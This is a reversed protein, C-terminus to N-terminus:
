PKKTQAIIWEIISIIAWIVFAVGGIVAFTAMWAPHFVFVALMAILLAILIEIM